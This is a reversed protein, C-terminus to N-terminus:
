WSWGTGSSWGGYGGGVGRSQSIIKYIHVGGYPSGGNSWSGAGGVNNWGAGSGGGYGAGPSIIKIIKVGGSPIRGNSWGGAGAGYDDGSYAGEYLIGANAVVCIALM